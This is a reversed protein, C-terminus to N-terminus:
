KKKYLFFGLGFLGLLLSGFFLMSQVVSLAKHSSEYTYFKKILRPNQKQIDRVLTKKEEMLAISERVVENVGERNLNLAFSTESASPKGYVAFLGYFSQQAVDKNKNDKTSTLLIQTNDIVKSDIDMIRAQKNSVNIPLLSTTQCGTLALLFLGCFFYRFLLFIM